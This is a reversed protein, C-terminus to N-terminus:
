ILYIFYVFYKLIILWLVENFITDFRWVGTV